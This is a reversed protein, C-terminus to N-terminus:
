SFASSHHLHHHNHYEKQYHVCGIFLVSSFVIVDQIMAFLSFAERIYMNTTTTLSVFCLSITKPRVVGCKQDCLGRCPVEINKMSQNQRPLILRVVFASVKNEPAIKKQQKTAPDHPTFPL